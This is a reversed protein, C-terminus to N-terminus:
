ILVEPNFRGAARLGDENADLYYIWDTGKQLRDMVVIRSPEKNGDWHIIHVDYNGSVGKGCFTGYIKRKADYATTGCSPNVGIGIKIM